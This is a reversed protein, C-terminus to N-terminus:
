LFIKIILQIRAKALVEGIATIEWDQYIDYEKKLERIMDEGIKQEDKWSLDFLGARVPRAPCLVLVALILLLVSRTERTM